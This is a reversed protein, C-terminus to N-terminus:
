GIVEMVSMQIIRHRFADRYQSLHYTYNREENDLLPSRSEKAPVTTHLREKKPREEDPDTFPEETGPHHPTVEEEDEDGDEDELDPIVLDEPQDRKSIDPNLDNTVSLTTNNITKM